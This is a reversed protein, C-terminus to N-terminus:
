TPSGPALFRAVGSVLDDAGLRRPSVPPLSGLFVQGYRQTVVRGDLVVVVGRDQHSRILRGFGQRFRIVAQPLAFDRFPDGGRAEILEARAQQVPHTPVRFPLRTLVVCSLADGPVDVGEWFSDTGFLVAKRGGRFEELLRARELTGQALLRFGALRERAARHVRQLLSYSTFLVFM